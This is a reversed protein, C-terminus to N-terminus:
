RDYNKNNGTVNEVEVDKRRVNDRITEERQDVSKDVSVEEVVRAEKNVVPIERRERVEITEEDLNDLEDNSVPRDVKNREVTVHEERLRITEEVPKEIIRSRLRVGGGTEVVRKGIQVNEEVVPIKRSEDNADELDTTDTINRNRTDYERDKEDIDVAGYEDLLESARRAEEVSSAHVTVICGRKAVRSYRDSEDDDGFLNKFFRSIGSENDNGNEDSTYTDSASGRAYDVNREDFGDNLLQDVANRAENANNFIGVVTQSM